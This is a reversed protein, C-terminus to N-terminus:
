FKPPDLHASFFHNSYEYEAPSYSDSPRARRKPIPFLKLFAPM